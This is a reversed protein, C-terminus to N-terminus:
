LILLIEPFQVTSLKGQIFGCPIIQFFVSGPLLRSISFDTEPSWGDFRKPCLLFFESSEFILLIFIEGIDTGLVPLKPGDGVIHVLHQVLVDGYLSILLLVPM